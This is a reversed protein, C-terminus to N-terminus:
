VKSKSEPSTELYSFIAEKQKLIGNLSSHSLNLNSAIQRKSYNNKLFEEAQIIMKKKEQLSYARRKAETQNKPKGM